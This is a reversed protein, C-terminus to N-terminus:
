VVLSEFMRLCAMDCYWTNFAMNDGQILCLCSEFIRPLPWTMVKLQFVLSEFMWAMVCWHLTLCCRVDIMDSRARQDQIALLSFSCQWREHLTKTAVFLREAEHLVRRARARAGAVLTLCRAAAVERRTHKRQVSTCVWSSQYKLEAPAIAIRHINASSWFNSTALIRMFICIKQSTEDAQLLRQCM